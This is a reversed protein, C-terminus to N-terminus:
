NWKKKVSENKNRVTQELVGNKWYKLVIFITIVIAVRWRRMGNFGWIDSRYVFAELRLLCKRSCDYHWSNNRMYTVKQGKFEWSEGRWEGVLHRRYLVWMEGLLKNTQQRLYVCFVCFVCFVCSVSKRRSCLQLFHM